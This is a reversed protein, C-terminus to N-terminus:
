FVGLGEIVAYLVDGYTLGLVLGLFMPVLFPIGPTIWVDDDSSLVTLGERLQEPTTGYASGDIEEFFREAGWPDTIATEEPADEDGAAPPPDGTAADDGPAPRGGDTV